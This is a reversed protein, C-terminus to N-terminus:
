NGYFFIYLGGFYLFFAILLVRFFLHYNVLYSFSSPILDIVSITLMVGSAFALSFCIIKDKNGKIYIIFYGILTALGALSTLLFSALIKSM